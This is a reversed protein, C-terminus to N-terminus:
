NRKKFDPKGSFIGGDGCEEGKTGGDPSLPLWWLGTLPLLEDLKIILLVAVTCGEANCGGTGWDDGCRCRVAGPEDAPTNSVQTKKTAFFSFFPLCMPFSRKKKLERREWDRPVITYTVLVSYRRKSLCWCIPYLNMRDSFIILWNRHTAIIDLRSM